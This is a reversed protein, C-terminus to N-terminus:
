HRVNPIFLHSLQLHKTQGTVDFSKLPSYFLYYVAKVSFNFGSGKRNSTRFIARKKCSDSSQFTCFQLIVQKIAREELNIGLTLTGNSHTQSCVRWFCKHIDLFIVYQFSTIQVQLSIRCILTVLDNSFQLSPVHSIAFARLINTQFGWPFFLISIVM